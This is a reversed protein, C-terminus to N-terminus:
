SMAEAVRKLLQKMDVESKVLYDVAGHRIAKDRINTDTVNTLIVVRTRDNDRDNTINELIHLGNIKPM